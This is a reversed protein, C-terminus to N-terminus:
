LHEKDLIEGSQRNSCEQTKLPNDHETNQQVAKLKQSVSAHLWVLQTFM